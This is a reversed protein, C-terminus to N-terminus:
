KLKNILSHKSCYAIGLLFPISLLIDIATPLSYRRNIFIVLCIYVISLFGILQFKAQMKIYSTYVSFLLLSLIIDCLVQNNPEFNNIKADIINLSITTILTSTIIFSKFIFM